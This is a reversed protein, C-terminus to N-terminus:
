SYLKPIKHITTLADDLNFGITSAYWELTEWRPNNESVVKTLAKERTLVGERIQNSRFTDHETFGAVTYYIYNYFAATGDGVRWSSETDDAGEWGYSNILVSEVDEEVWPIHHYLYTYDDKL